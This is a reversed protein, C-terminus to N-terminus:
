MRFYQGFAKRTADEGHKNTAEYYLMQLGDKIATYFNPFLKQNGDADSNCLNSVEIVIGQPGQVIHETPIEDDSLFKGNPGITYEGPIFRGTNFSIEFSIDLDLCLSIFNSLMKMETETVERAVGDPTNPREISM